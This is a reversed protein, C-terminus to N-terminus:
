NLYGTGEKRNKWRKKWSWSNLKSSWHEIIAYYKDLQKLFLKKIFTIIDPITQL